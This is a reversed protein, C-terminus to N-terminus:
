AVAEEMALLGRGCSWASWGYPRRRGTPPFSLLLPKWAGSWLTFGPSFASSVRTPDSPFLLPSAWPLLAVLLSGSHPWQFLRFFYTGPSRVAYNRCPLQAYHCLGKVGASEPCLLHIKTLELGAQEVSHTEPCDTSIFSQRPFFLHCFAANPLLSQAHM